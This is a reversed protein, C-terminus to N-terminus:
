TLPPLLPPGRLLQCCSSGSLELRAAPGEGREGAASGTDHAFNTRIPYLNVGIISVPVLSVSMARFAHTAFTLLTARPGGGCARDIARIRQMGDM